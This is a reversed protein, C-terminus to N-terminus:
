TPGESDQLKVALYARGPETALKASLVREFVQEFEALVAAEGSLFLETTSVFKDGMGSYDGVSYDILFEPIKVLGLGSLAGAMKAAARRREEVRTDAKVLWKAGQYGGVVVLILTSVVGLIGM